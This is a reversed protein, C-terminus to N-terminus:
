TGFRATASSTAWSAQTPTSRPMPLNSCRDVNRVHSMRMTILRATLAAARSRRLTGTFSMSGTILAALNSAAPVQCTGGSGQASCTSSLSVAAFIAVRIMDAM